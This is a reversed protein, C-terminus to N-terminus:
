TLQYRQVLEQRLNQVRTAMAEDVGMTLLEGLVTYAAQPNGVKEYCAALRTLLYTPNVHPHKKSNVFCNLAQQPMDKMFYCEGLGQWAQPSDPIRRTVQEYKQIAADYEKLALHTAALGLFGEINQPDLQLLKTYAVRAEDYRETMLSLKGYHAFGMETDFDGEMCSKKIFQFATQVDNHYILHLRGLNFLAKGYYPRLKIANHLAIKAKEFEKKQMLFSALNNHGEPYVPNITLARSLAVVANDIDGTQAYSVALNNCPDVYNDDLAIAKKFYPIADAFRGLNQSLEVGYNNFARAKGFSSDPSHNIMNGWFDLGTRWITNRQYTALSLLLAFAYLGVASPIKHALPASNAIKGIVYTTIYVMSIAIILLWGLSALYTKYDVLLEPSPMITSRPAVCIAFWLTGFVIPHLKNHLWLRIVLAALAILALLPLLCDLAFFSKVVMWDYEVSIGFPCIFIFLYHLIVKFQSLFFTIPSILDKPDHTIVNGINNKVQYNLGLISLFFQPKLFYIYVATILTFISLHLWLRQKFQQWSGQAVFFWDVLAILFPTVITIEKTGCSLLGVTYLLILLAIRVGTHTANTYHLFLWMMTFSALAALGELQGQIVYSVTQTQVPHLLFLLTTLLAITFGHKKFFSKQAYQEFLIRLIAFVLLGNLLHICVNGVRYAFPDFLGIRYYISNLWYSIWRTGSFFLYKLSYHRINFHKTINALDDFQFAYHLSPYYTLITFLTLSIYTIASAVWTQKHLPIAIKAAKKSM